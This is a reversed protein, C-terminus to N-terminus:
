MVRILFMYLATGAAISLLNNRKLIHIVSVAIVSIFTPAFGSLTTFSIGRVCYVLLVAMVCAPLYRGLYRAYDPLSDSKSFVLFPLARTFFNCACAISIIAASYVAGGITYGLASLVVSTMILRGMFAYITKNSM